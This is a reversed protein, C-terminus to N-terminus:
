PSGDSPHGKFRPGGPAVRHLTRDIVLKGETDIQGRREFRPLAGDPDYLYARFAQLTFHTGTADVDYSFMDKGSPLKQPDTRLCYFGANHARELADANNQAASRYQLSWTRYSFPDSDDVLSSPCLKGDRAYARTVDEVLVSLGAAAEAEGSAVRLSNWLFAVCVVVGLGLAVFLGIGVCVRVRPHLSLEAGTEIAAERDTPTVHASM